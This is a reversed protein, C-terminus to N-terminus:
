ALTSDGTALFRLTVTFRENVPICERFDTNKKKIKPGILGIIFEFDSSSLRCFNLLDSENYRSRSEFLQTLWYRRKRSFKRNPKKSIGANIVIFAACAIKISEDELQYLFKDTLYDYHYDTFRLFIFTNGYAHLLHLLAKGCIESM